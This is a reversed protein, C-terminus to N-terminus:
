GLRAVVHPRALRYFLWAAVLMIAALGAVLMFGGGIGGATIWSRSTELLPTVPNLRLLGSEAAPYIIPTLFFWFGAILLLGQRVDDYLLGLPAALLGLAFGLLALAAMGVPLLLASPAPVIAFAALVAALAALRVLANLAVEYAGALLIAEHPVRSRTIMPRAGWLQQLPANLSDVFVQWLVMGALVHVAYPLETGGIGFIRRSQLYVCIATAAAAPLVLWLYRLLSRRHRARLNARFLHWGVGLSRRLDRAAEALFRRPDALESRASSVTEPM